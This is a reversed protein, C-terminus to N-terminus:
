KAKRTMMILIEWTFFRSIIYHSALFLNSFQLSSRDRTKFLERKFFIKNNQKKLIYVLVKFFLIFCITQFQKKQINRDDPFAQVYDGHCIQKALFDTSMDGDRLIPSVALM